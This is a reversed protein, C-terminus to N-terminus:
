PKWQVWRREKKDWWWDSNERYREYRSSSSPQSGFPADTNTESQLRAYRTQRSQGVGARTMGSADVHTKPVGADECQKRSTGSSGSAMQWASKGLYNKANTNCGLQVLKAAIDTVGTASALLYPTNGKAATAELNARKAALREVIQVRALERDSGDCAFHLATYGCPQTGTTGYNIIDAPTVEILMFAAKTARTSYSSADVAHHLASWGNADLDDSRGFGGLAMWWKGWDYGDELERDSLSQELVEAMPKRGRFDAPLVILSAAALLDKYNVGVASPQSGQLARKSFEALSIAEDPYGGCAHIIRARLKDALARRTARADVLPQTELLEQADLRRQVQAETQFGRPQSRVLDPKSSRWSLRKLEAQTKRTAEKVQKLYEDEIARVAEIQRWTEDSVSAKLEDAKRTSAQQIVAQLQAPDVQSPAESSPCEDAQRPPRRGEQSAERIVRQFWRTAPPCYKFDIRQFWVDDLSSTRVAAAAAAAAAGGSSRRRKAPLRM